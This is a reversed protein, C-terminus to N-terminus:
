PARRYSAELAGPHDDEVALAAVVDGVGVAVHNAADVGSAM